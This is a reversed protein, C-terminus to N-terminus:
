WSASASRPQGLSASAPRPQLGGQAQDPALERRYWIALQLAALQLASAAPQGPAPRPRPRFGFPAPPKLSGASRLGHWGLWVRTRRWLSDHEYASYNEYGHEPPPEEAAAHPLADLLQQPLVTSSPAQGIRRTVLPRYGSVNMPSPPQVRGSHEAGHQCLQASTVDETNFLRTQTDKTWTTM